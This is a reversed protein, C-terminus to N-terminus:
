TSSSNPYLSGLDDRINMGEKIYLNMVQLETLIKTLIEVVAPINTVGIDPREAVVLATDNSTSKIVKDRVTTKVPTIPVSYADKSVSSDQVITTLQSSAQKTSAM